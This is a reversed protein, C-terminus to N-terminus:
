QLRRSRSVWKKTTGDLFTCWYVDLIVKIRELVVFNDIWGLNTHQDRCEWQNMSKYFKGFRGQPWVVALSVHLRIRRDRVWRCLLWRCM